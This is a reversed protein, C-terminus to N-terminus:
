YTQYIFDKDPLKGGISQPNFKYFRTLYRNVEQKLAFAGLYRINCLPISYKAVTTNLSIGHNVILNAVKDPQETTFNCSLFYVDCVQFVIAPNDKSFRGSVLYSTQVFINKDLNDLYEECELYLNQANKKFRM